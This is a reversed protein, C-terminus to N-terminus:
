LGCACQPAPHLVLKAAPRHTDVVKEAVVKERWLGGFPSANMAIWVSALSNRM